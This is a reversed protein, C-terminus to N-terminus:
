SIIILIITIYYIIFLLRLSCLSLLLCRGIVISLVHRVDNTTTTIVLFM